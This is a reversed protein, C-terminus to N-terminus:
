FEWAGYTLVGIMSRGKWSRQHPMTSHAAILREGTMVYLRGDSIACNPFVRFLWSVVYSIVINEPKIDRHAVDVEHLYKIAASM